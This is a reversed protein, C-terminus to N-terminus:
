MMAYVCFNSRIKNQRSIHKCKVYWVAKIPILNFSCLVGTINALVYTEAKVSSFIVSCPKCTAKILCVGVLAPGM